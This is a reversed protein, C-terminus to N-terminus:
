PAVQFGFQKVRARRVENCVDVVAQFHAKADAALQVPIDRRAADELAAQLEPMDVPRNHLLIIGADDIGLVLLEEAVTQEGADAEPLSVPLTDHHSLAMMSYIFFVLLLFVVDILPILEIRARKKLRTKIKM